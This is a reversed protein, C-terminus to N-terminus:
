APCAAPIGVMAAAQPYQPWVSGASQNASMMAECGSSKTVKIVREQFKERRGYILDVIVYSSM